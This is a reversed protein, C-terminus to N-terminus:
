ATDMSVQNRYLISAPYSVIALGFHAVTGIVTIQGNTIFTVDQLATTYIPYIYILGGFLNTLLGMLLGSWQVCKPSLTVRKGMTALAAGSVGVKFNSCIPTAM